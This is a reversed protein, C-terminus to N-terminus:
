NWHCHLKMKLLVAAQWVQKLFNLFIPTVTEPHNFFFFFFKLFYFLVVTTYGTTFFSIASLILTIRLRKSIQESALLAYQFPRSSSLPQSSIKGPQYVQPVHSCYVPAECRVQCSEGPRLCCLAIPLGKMSCVSFVCAGRGSGLFCFSMGSYGPM